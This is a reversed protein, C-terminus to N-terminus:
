SRFVKAKHYIEDLKANASQVSSLHLSRLASIDTRLQVTQKHLGIITSAMSASILPQPTAASSIDSTGAVCMPKNKNSFCKAFAIRSRLCVVCVINVILCTNTRHLPLSQFAAVTLRWYDAQRFLNSGVKVLRLCKMIESLNVGKSFTSLDVM